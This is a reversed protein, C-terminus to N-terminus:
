VLVDQTAARLLATLEDVRGELTRLERWTAPRSAAGQQTPEEPDLAAGLLRGATTAQLLTCTSAGHEIRDIRSQTMPCGAHTMARALAAQSLRADTRLTRLREGLAVDYAAERARAALRAAQAPTQTPGM